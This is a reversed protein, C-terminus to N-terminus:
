LIQLKLQIINIDYKKIKSILTVKSININKATNNIKGRYKKLKEVLFNKEFKELADYYNDTIEINEKKESIWAPLHSFDVSETAM